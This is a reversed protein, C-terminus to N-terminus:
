VVGFPRKVSKHISVRKTPIAENDASAFEECHSAPYDLFPRLFYKEETKQSGKDRNKEEPYRIRNNDDKGM